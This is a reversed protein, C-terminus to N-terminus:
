MSVHCQDGRIVLTCPFWKRQTHLSLLLQCLILTFYSSQMKIDKGLNVFVSFLSDVISDMIADIDSDKVDGRNVAAVYFVDAICLFHTLM